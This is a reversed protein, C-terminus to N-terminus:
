LRRHGILFYGLSFLELNIFIFHRYFEWIRQM